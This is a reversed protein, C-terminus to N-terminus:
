DEFLKGTAAFRELYPLLAAVDKPTLWSCLTLHPSTGFDVRAMTRLGSCDILTREPEDLLADGHFRYDGHESIHTADTTM